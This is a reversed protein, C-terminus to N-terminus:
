PTTKNILGMAAVVVGAIMSILGEVLMFWGFAMGGPSSFGLPNSLLFITNGYLVLVLGAVANLTKM